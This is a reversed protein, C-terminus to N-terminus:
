RCGRHNLGFPGYWQRAAGQQTPSHVFELECPDKYNGSVIESLNTLTRRQSEVFNKVASENDLNWERDVAAAISARYLGYQTNLAAMDTALEGGPMLTKIEGDVRTVNEFDAKDEASENAQRMSLNAAHLAVEPVEKTLIAVEEKMSEENSTANRRVRSVELATELMLSMSHTLGSAQATINGVHVSLDHVSKSIARAQATLAAAEGRLRTAEALLAEQTAAVPARRHRGASGHRGRRLLLLGGGGSSHNGNHVPQTDAGAAVLPVSAALAPLAILCFSRLGASMPPM